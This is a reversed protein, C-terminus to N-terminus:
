AIVPVTKLFRLSRETSEMRRLDLYHLTVANQSICASSISHTFIKNNRNMKLDHHPDGDGAFQHFHRIKGPSPGPNQSIWSDFWQQRKEVTAPDYLTFSSWIHAQRENLRETSKSCGNWCCTFLRSCETIIATFPEIQDLDAQEFAMVPSPSSVLDLLVLGRSKRYPPRHVHKEKAGNLFVVATGDENIAFWTGGAHADRPFLIRRGNLQGIEPPLAAQRTKQEDRNATLFFKGGSPIFTVTCM